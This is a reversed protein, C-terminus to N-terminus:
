EALSNVYARTMNGFYGTGSTLGGPALVEKAHANQFRTVAGMTGRGFLMTENGASGPGTASVAFGHANLFKQLIRVDDGTMGLRLNRAFVYGVTGEKGTAPSSLSATAVTTVPGSGLTVSDSAVPSAQGYKTFYKAYVTYTGPPCSSAKVTGDSTACLDWDMSTVYPILGADRFDSSTSIAMRTVNSGATLGLPVSRSATVPKGDNVVLDFPGIPRDFLDSPPPVGTQGQIVSFPLSGSGVGPTPSWVSLNLTGVNAVDGGGLSVSLHSTDVFNTTRNAGNVRVTANRAFGSGTVTVGVPNSVTGSSPSLTAITPPDADFLISVTGPSINSVILDGKGDGNMDATATARPVAGVTTTTQTGFGGAGDGLLVSVTNSSSNAIAADMKGDRNFDGTVIDHPQSETAFTAMAGFAGRGDGLFVGVNSSNRRSVILDAFTDGNLDASAVGTLGRTAAYDVKPNFAGNGRNLLVSVKETNYPLFCGACSNAVALDPYGDGDFDKAVLDVPDLGTAYDSNAGFAGRGDGLLVSVTDANINTVAVDMKGDLDFDSSIVAFPQSGVGNGSGAGFTGDGNGPFFTVRDAGRIAVVLDLKGDGDFDAATLSSPQPGTSFTVTSGFTGDAAGLLVSVTDADYNAAAIDMIGDNNLDAVAMGYPQSNVAVSTAASFPYAFAAPAFSM